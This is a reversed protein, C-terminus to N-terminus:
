SCILLFVFTNPCIYCVKSFFFVALMTTGKSHPSIDILHVSTNIPELFQLTPLAISYLVHCIMIMKKCYRCVDASEQAINVFKQEISCVEDNALM